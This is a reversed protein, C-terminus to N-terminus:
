LQNENVVFLIRSTKGFSLIGLAPHDYHRSFTLQTARTLSTSKSSYDQIPPGVITPLVFIVYPGRSKEGNDEPSCSTPSILEDDVKAINSDLISSPHCYYLFKKSPLDFVDHQYCSDFRSRNPFRLDPQARIQQQKGSALLLSCIYSLICMLGSYKRKSRPLLTAGLSSSCFSSCTAETCLLHRRITKRKSEANQILTTTTFHWSLLQL